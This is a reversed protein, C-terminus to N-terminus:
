KSSKNRFADASNYLRWRWQLIEASQAVVESASFWYADTYEQKCMDFCCLISHKPGHVGKYHIAQTTGKEVWKLHDSNRYTTKGTSSYTRFAKLEILAHNKMIGPTASAEILLLDLRGEGTEVESVPLLNCEFNGYMYSQLRGQIEKEVNEAPYWKAADSWNKAGTSSAQFPTKLTGEYLNDIVERIKETTVFVPSLPTAVTFDSDLGNPYFAITEQMDLPNYIIAPTDQLGYEMLYDIFDNLGFSGIKCSKGRQVKPNVFWAYGALTVEGSSLRRESKIETVKELEVPVEPALFFISPELVNTKLAVYKRLANVTNAYFQDAAPTEGEIVPGGSLTRQLSQSLEDQSWSGFNGSM